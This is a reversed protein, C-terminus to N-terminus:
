STLGKVSVGTHHLLSLMKEKQQADCSNYFTSRILTMLDDYMRVFDLTVKEFDEESLLM